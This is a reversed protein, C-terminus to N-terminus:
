GSPRSTLEIDAIARLQRVLHQYNAQGASRELTNTESERAAPELDELSGDKVETLAVM